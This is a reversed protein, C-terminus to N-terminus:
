KVTKSNTKDFHDTEKTILFAAVRKGGALSRFLLTKNNGILSAKSDDNVLVVVRWGPKIAKGLGSYLHELRGKDAVARAGFPPHSVVVVREDGGHHSRLLESFSCCSFV